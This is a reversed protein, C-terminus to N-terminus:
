DRLAYYYEINSYRIYIRKQNLISGSNTRVPVYMLEIKLKTGDKDYATYLYNGKTTEVATYPTIFVDEFGNNIEIKDIINLLNESDNVYFSVQLGDSIDIKQWKWQTNISRVSASYANYPVKVSQAYSVITVSAFLLAM